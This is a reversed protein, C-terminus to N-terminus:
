DDYTRSMKLGDEANKFAVLQAALPLDDWLKQLSPHVCDWWRGDRTQLDDRLRDPDRGVWEFLKTEIENTAITM